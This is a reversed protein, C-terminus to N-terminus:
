QLISLNCCNLVFQLLISLNCCNIVYQLLLYIAVIYSIAHLKVLIFWFIICFKINRQKVCPAGYPLSHTSISDPGLDGFNNQVRESCFKEVLADKLFCKRITKFCSCNNRNGFNRKGIKIFSKRGMKRSGINEFINSFIM